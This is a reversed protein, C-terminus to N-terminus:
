RVPMLVVLIDANEVSAKM